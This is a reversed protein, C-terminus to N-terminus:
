IKFPIITPNIKINKFCFYTMILNWLVLAIVSTIAVGFMGYHNVLVIGLILKIVIAIYFGKVPIKEYGSLNLLWGNCGNMANFAQGIMLICLISYSVGYEEGFLLCIFYGFLYLFILVISSFTAIIKAYLLVRQQVIDKSLQKYDEALQSVVNSVIAGLVFAIVMSLQLAVGYYALQETDSFFQLLLIDIQALLMSGWQALAFSLSGNRPKVKKVGYKYSNIFVLLIALLLTGIFLGLLLYLASLDLLLFAMTLFIVWFGNIILLITSSTLPKKISIFYSQYLNAVFLPFVYLFALFAILASGSDGIFKLYAIWGITIVVIIPLGNFLYWNSIYHVYRKREFDDFESWGWTRVMIGLCGMMAIAAVLKAM